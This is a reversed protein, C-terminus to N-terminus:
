AGGELRNKFEGLPFVPIVVDAIYECSKRPDMRWNTPCSSLLEVFGYGLNRTQCEFAKQISKKAARIHAVSDLSCRASYVVGDLSAMMEAMRLPGGENSMSRGRPTTTTKQGLLTTPAMQGGTMGYLTNNIFFVAIREGRNAAHIGECLGLSALDGDGQYAFVIKDPRARRVGTAVASARGHPAEICDFDMYDYIFASCGVSAVLITDAALGMEDVVECILRHAVGHQCGPCYHTSRDILSPTMSFVLTEASQM